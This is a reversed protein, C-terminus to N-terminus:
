EQQPLTCPRLDLAAEAARQKEAREKDGMRFRIDSDNCEIRAKAIHSAV